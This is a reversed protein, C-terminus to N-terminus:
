LNRLGASPTNGKLDVDAVPLRKVGHHRLHKVAETADVHQDVVRCDEGRELLTREVLDWQLLTRCTLTVPVNRLMQATVGVMFFAPDPRIMVTEEFETRLPTVL